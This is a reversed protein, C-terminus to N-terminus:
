KTAVPSVTSKVEVSVLSSKISDHLISQISSVEGKISQVDEKVQEMDAKTKVTADKVSGGHNLNLQYHVSDLQEGQTVQTAEVRAIAEGQLAQQKTQEVQNSEVGAMRVMMGPRGAVGDRDPVGQWDELFNRGAKMFPAVEKYAKIVKAVGFALFSLIIAGIGTLLAPNFIISALPDQAM